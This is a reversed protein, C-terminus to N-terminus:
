VLMMAPLHCRVNIHSLNCAEWMAALSTVKRTSQGAPLIICVAVTSATVPQFVSHVCMQAPQVWRGETQSSEPGGLGHDSAVVHPWAAWDPLM